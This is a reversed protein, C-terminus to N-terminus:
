EGKCEAEDLAAGGLGDRGRRNADRMFEGLLAGCAEGVQVVIDGEGQAWVGGGHGAVLEEAEM